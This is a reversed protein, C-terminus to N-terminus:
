AQGAVHAVDDHVDVVHLAHVDVGQAAGVGDRDVVEAPGGDCRDVDIQPGSVALTVRHDDGAGSAVVDDQDAPVGGTHRDLAEVKIHRAHKGQGEIKLLSSDKPVIHHFYLM